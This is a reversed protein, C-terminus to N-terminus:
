IILATPVCTLIVRGLCGESDSFVFPITESEDVSASESFELERDVIMGEGHDLRVRSEDLRQCYVTKGYM